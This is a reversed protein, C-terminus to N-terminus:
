EHAPVLSCGSERQWALLRRGVEWNSFDRLQLEERVVQHFYDCSWGKVQGEGETCLLVYLADLADKGLCVQDFETSISSLRAAVSEKLLQSWEMEMAVVDLADAPSPSRSEIERIDVGSLDRLRLQKGDRKMSISEASAARRVASVSMALDVAREVLNKAHEDSTVFRRAVREAVGLSVLDAEMDCSQTVLLGDETALDPTKGVSDCDILFVCKCGTIPQTRLHRLLQEVLTRTGASFVASRNDAQHRKFVAEDTAGEVILM